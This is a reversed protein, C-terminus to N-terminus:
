IEENGIIDRKLFVLQGLYMLIYGGVVLKGLNIIYTIWDFRNNQFWADAFNMYFSPSIQEFNMFSVGTLFVYIWAGLLVYIGSFGLINRLFFLTMGILNLYFVLMTCKIIMFLYYKNYLLVGINVCLSTFLIDVGMYIMAFIFSFFFIRKAEIKEYRIRGYKIIIYQKGQVFIYYFSVSYIIPVIMGLMQRCNQYRNSIFDAINDNGIEYTGFVLSLNMGIWFISFVVGIIIFVKETKRNKLNFEIM